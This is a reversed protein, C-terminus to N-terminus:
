RIWKLAQPFVPAALQVTNGHIDASPTLICLVSVALSLWRLTTVGETRVLSALAVFVAPFFYASSRTTDFVMTCSIAYAAVAGPFAARLWTAGRLLLAAAGLLVVLWFWKLGSAIGILFMPWQERAVAFSIGSPHPASWLRGRFEFRGIAYALLAIITAWVRRDKLITEGPAAGQTQEPQTLRWLFLLPSVLVAREDTWCAFFLGAFIILPRRSIMALALGCFAMGDFVPRMDLFCAQGVYCFAFGFPLLVACCKDETARYSLLSLLALFAVGSFQQVLILGGLGLGTAHGLIPMSLRYVLKAAHEEEKIGEVSNPGFPHEIQRRLVLRTAAREPSVGQPAALGFLDMTHQYDPFNVAMSAIASLAAVALAGACPTWRDCAAFLARCKRFIFDFVMPNTVKLLKLRPTWHFHWEANPIGASDLVGPITVVSSFGNEVAVLIPRQQFQTNSACFQTSNTSCPFHCFSQSPRPLGASDPPSGHDGSFDFLFPGAELALFRGSLLPVKVLQAAQKPLGGGGLGVGRTRIKVTELLAHHFVRLKEAQVFGRVGAFRRFAAKGLKCLSRGM